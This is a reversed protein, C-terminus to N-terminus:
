QPTATPCGSVIQIDQVGGTKLEACASGHLEITDADVWVWGNTEDQLVVVEDFYVNTKGPEGPPDQLDFSCSILSGAIDTFLGALVDFDDVRYYATSGSQPAGGVIALQNLVGAYKETGPVGVVYVNTGDDAIAQVATMSAVRDVCSAGAQPIGTEVPDCCNSYGSGACFGDINTTCESAPCTLDLNCNPAGDTALIVAKPGAEGAIKGRVYELTAATPTGGNPIVNIANAFGQTTPAQPKYVQVGAECGTPGDEPYLTVGVRVLNKLADVMDVAAEAVRKWRSENSAPDVSSMSGSRDIVMYILPRKQIPHHVEAGCIAAGDTVFGTTSTSGGQSSHGGTDEFDYRSGSCAGWTLTLTAAAAFGFALFARM